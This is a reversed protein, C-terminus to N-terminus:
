TWSRRCRRGEPRARASSGAAWGDTAPRGLDSCSWPALQGGPPLALGTGTIYSKHLFTM